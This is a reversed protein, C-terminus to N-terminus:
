PALVSPDLFENRIGAGPAAEPPPPDLAAANDRAQDADLRGSMRGRLRDPAILPVLLQWKAAEVAAELHPNAALLARLCPRGDAACRSYARQVVRTFRRAIEPTGDATRGSLAVVNGYPNVGIDRWRLTALDDGFATRFELEHHYFSSMAAVVTGTALARVKDNNPTQVWTPSAASVSHRQALLPWLRRGPEKADSAVRKGLLGDISDLAQPATAFFSIPSDSFVAMVAVPNRGQARMALLTTFDAIAADCEGKELRDLADGSGGGPVIESALGAAAFWGQERAFYLPAHDAGPAWNLCIRMREAASAVPTGSAAVALTLALLCTRGIDVIGSDTM